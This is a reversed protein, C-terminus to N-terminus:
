DSVSPHSLGMFILGAETVYHFRIWPLSSLVQICELAPFSTSTHIGLCTFVCAALGAQIHMVIFALNSM